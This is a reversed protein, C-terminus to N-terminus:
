CMTITNWPANESGACVLQCADECDNKLREKDWDKIGVHRLSVVMM